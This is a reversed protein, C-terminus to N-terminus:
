GKLEDSLERSTSEEALIECFVNFQEHNIQVAKRVESMVKNGKERDTLQPKTAIELAEEDILERAFLEEPIQGRIVATTLKRYMRRLTKNAAGAQAEQPAPVEQAM